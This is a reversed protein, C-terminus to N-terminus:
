KKKHVKTKKKQKESDSDSDSSDDSSKRNRGGRGGRSGFRRGGRGGRIGFRGGCRRGDDDNDSEDIPKNKNKLHEEVEKGFEEDKNDTLYLYLWLIENIKINLLKINSFEAEFKEDQTNTGKWLDKEKM